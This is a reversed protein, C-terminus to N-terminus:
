PKALRFFVPPSGPDLTTAFPSITGSGTPIWNTGIGLSNTQVEVSYGPFAGSDWSLTLIQNNRSLTIVPVVAEVSISGSAALNDVWSLGTPLNPFSTSDFGGGFGLASFLTYNNGPAPAPGSNVVELNGSYFLTLPNSPDSQLVLQNTTAIDFILTGNLIPTNNTLLITTGIRYTGNVAITPLKLPKGTIIGTGDFSISGHGTGSIVGLNTLSGGVGWQTGDAINWALSTPGVIVNGGLYNSGLSGDLDMLLARAGTVVTNSGVTLYFSSSDWKNSLGLLMFNGGISIDAGQQVSISTGSLIMDGAINMPVANSGFISGNYFDGHGSFVLNYYDTRKAWFSNGRYNVTTGAATANLVALQQAGFADSADGLINLTVGPALTVTGSGHLYACTVTSDVTVVFPSEVDASDNTRPVVGNPWPAGPVTSFWNGSGSAKIDAARGMWSLFLLPLIAAVLACNREFKM